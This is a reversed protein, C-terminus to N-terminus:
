PHEYRVTKPDDGVLVGENHGTMGSCVEQYTPNTTHGGAYGVATVYVGPLQWFYKEAGWFCGLGFQAQEMGTPFPPTLPRGNVFHKEPVPMKETRGPWAENASPMRPKKMFDLM